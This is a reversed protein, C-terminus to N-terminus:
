SDGPHENKGQELEQVRHRLEDMPDDKKQTSTTFSQGLTELFGKKNSRAAGRAIAYMIVNAGIVLGIFILAGIIARNNEM